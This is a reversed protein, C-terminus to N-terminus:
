FYWGPVISIETQIKKSALILAVRQKATENKGAIGYVCELPFREKVLFEAMRLSKRNPHEPETFFYKGFPLMELPCGANSMTPDEFFIEWPLDKLCALEEFQRALANLPHCDTFFFKLGASLVREVTTYFYVFDEQNLGRSDFGRLLPSRPAFYFPVYDHLTGGLQEPALVSQRRDQIEAYSMDVNPTIGTTAMRNKSLLGGDGCISRLNDIATLHFIPTKLDLCRRPM